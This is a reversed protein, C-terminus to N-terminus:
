NSGGAFKADDPVELLYLDAVVLAVLVLFPQLTAIAVLDDQLIFRNHVAAEHVLLKCNTFRGLSRQNHGGRHLNAGEAYRAPPLQPPDIELRFRRHYQQDPYLHTQRLVRRIGDGRVWDSYPHGGEHVGQPRAQPVAQRPPRQGQRVGELTSPPTSPTWRSRRDCFGGSSISVSTLVIVVTSDSSDPTLNPENVSDVTEIGAITTVAVDAYST